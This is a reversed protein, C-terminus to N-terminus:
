RSPGSVADGVETQEFDEVVKAAARQNANQAVKRSGANLNIQDIWRPPMERWARAKHHIEDPLLNSLNQRLKLRCRILACQALVASVRARERPRM